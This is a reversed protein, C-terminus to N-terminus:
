VAAPTSKLYAMAVQAGIKVPLVQGNYTYAGLAQFAQSTNSGTSPTMKAVAASQDATSWRWNAAATDAAANKTMLLCTVTMQLTANAAATLQVYAAFTQWRAQVPHQENLMYNILVGLGTSQRPQLDAVGQEDAHEWVKLLEDATDLAVEIVDDALLTPLEKMVFSGVATLLESIMGPQVNVDTDIDVDVDTDVDTVVDTDTDTVVDVDIDIDVDVDVDVVALFDVDVDIDIDVDVDVDVDV